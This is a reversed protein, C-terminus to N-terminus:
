VRFRFGRIKVHKIPGVREVWGKGRRREGGSGVGGRKRRERGGELVRGESM